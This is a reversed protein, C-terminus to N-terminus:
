CIDKVEKTLKIRLYKPNKLPTIKFPVTNKHEKELIENNTYLFAVSKQININYGAVKSFKNILELLKQTSDKPNEIGLIMDDAYPSLKVEERGIQIGQIAKTSKSHSPSGFSHQVLTTLTPM